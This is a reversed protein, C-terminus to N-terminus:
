DEGTGEDEEQEEEPYEEEAEEEEEPVTEDMDPEQGLPIMSAQVLVVDAEPGLAPMDVMGRKENLTIFDTEEARKWLEQRRPALAPVDDLMFDIFLDEGDQFLWNNLEEKFYRLYYFITEEWFSLRAEQYNSNHVVIGDAIFNHNGEVEIDYVDEPDCMRVSQVPSFHLCDRDAIEDIKRLSDASGTSLAGRRREKSLNRFIKKKYSDTHTGITLVDEANSIMMTYCTASYKKKNPLTSIYDKRIIKGVQVGCSLCLHWIDKVLNENCLVVAARGNNDVSGDSDIVGRLFALRHAKDTSFVWSPIRKTHATGTFGLNQMKRISENSCFSIARGSRVAKRGTFSEAISSYYEEYEAGDPIALSIRGGRKYGRGEKIKVPNTIYGDGIFFGFFEMEQITINKNDFRAEPLKHVQVIVDGKKISDASVYEMSYEVLGEVKKSRRVLVPHNGTARIKRNKTEIEYLVKNGVYGSWTVRKEEVRGGGGVSYVIDGKKIEAISVGGNPTSIFSTEPLCYTNDGPIGLLMSPVGYGVAIRRALEQGGPIYDIEKPSWSYPKADVGGEGELLLTRSANKSGEYNAKIQGKLREYQQDTLFGKVSFLMGPRAENQLMSKNWETMENSTDIERATPQTAGAGYFDDTPHFNRIHLVDSEGTAMDVPFVYSKGGVMYKYGTKQGTNDNIQISVRDPRLTYLEKPYRAGEGGSMRVREFYCNGNMVLYATNALMIYSFSDQPNARKLLPVIPHVLIEERADDGKERFLKWPVSSVSKAILDICRYSIVNKLYSEKAFNEFDQDAWVAGGGGVSLLAQVQSAKEELIRNIRRKFLREFLSMM